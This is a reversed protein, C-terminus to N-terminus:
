PLEPHRHNNSLKRAICPFIGVSVYRLLAHAKTKIDRHPSSIPRVSGTDASSIERVCKSLYRAGLGAWQILPQLTRVEDMTFDFLKALAAFDEGLIKRDVLAFDEVGTRLMVEGSPFRVPFVQNALVPTPDFGSIGMSLFSNFALLTEKAEEVSLEPGDHAALKDYVM